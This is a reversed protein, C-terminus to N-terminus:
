PYLIEKFWKGNKNIYNLREHIRDKGELWFEIEEPHIKWGSWYEPRKVSSKDPYNNKLNEIKKLLEEKNKLRASQQSALAGVRSLYSRSDFYEDAEKDSIQKVKGLVRIQKKISKWYFCMSAFPNNKIEQSKKSDLNTYFVFGKKSFSKLLVMRVNPQNNSGSTGLAFANSNIIESKEAETYWTNFLSIPDDHDGFCIDLGLSNKQNM